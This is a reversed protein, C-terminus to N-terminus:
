NPMHPACARKKRKKERPLENKWSCPAMEKRKERAFDGGDAEARRAEAKM